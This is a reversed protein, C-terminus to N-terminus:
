KIEEEARGFYGCFFAIGLVAAMVFPLGWTYPHPDVSTGIAPITLGVWVAIYVLGMATIPGIRITIM